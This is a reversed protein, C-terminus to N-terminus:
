AIAYYFPDDSGSPAVIRKMTGSLGLGYRNGLGVFDYYNEMVDNIYHPNGFETRHMYLLSQYKSLWLGVM